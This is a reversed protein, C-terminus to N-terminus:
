DPDISKSSNELTSWLCALAPPPRSADATAPAPDRKPQISGKEQNEDGFSSSCRPETASGNAHREGTSAYPPPLQLKLWGHDGGVDGLSCSGM